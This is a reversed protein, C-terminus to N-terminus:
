LQSFVSPLVGPFKSEIEKLRLTNYTERGKKESHILGTQRLIGFHHSRTSIALDGIGKVAEMCTLPKDSDYLNKAIQFRSPDGLSYLLGPLTIDDISPFFLPKM